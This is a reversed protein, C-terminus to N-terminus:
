AEKQVEYTILAEKIYHLTFVSQLGSHFLSHHYVDIQPDNKLIDLNGIKKDNLGM